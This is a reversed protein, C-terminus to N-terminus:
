RLEFEVIELSQIAAQKAGTHIHSYHELMRKPLHGSLGKLTAEPSRRGTIAFNFAFKPEAVKSETPRERSGRAIGCRIAWEPAASKVLRYEM